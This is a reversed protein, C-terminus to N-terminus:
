SDKLLGRKIWKLGLLKPSGQPEATFYGGLLPPSASENGPNPHNEPSPFPLGNWHEQRPFAVSLPAPLSGDM